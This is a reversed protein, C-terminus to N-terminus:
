AAIPLQLARRRLWNGLNYAFMKGNVEACVATRGSRRVRRLHQNHKITFIRSEGASRWQRLERILPDNWSEQGHQRKGKSGSVSFDIVGLERIDTETQKGAYGDDTSLQKVAIGTNATCQIVVQKLSKSDSANGKNLVAAACYGADNFAFQIKYGLIAERGGKVIIAADTDKNSFYKLDSKLPKGKFIRENAQNVVSLLAHFYGGHRQEITKLHRRQKHTLQLAYQVQDQLYRSQFAQVCKLIKMTASLAKRYGQRVRKRKGAKKGWLGMERHQTEVQSLWRNVKCSLERELGLMQKMRQLERLLGHLSEVLLASDIPYSANAKVATSDVVVREWQALSHDQKELWRLQKQSIKLAAQEDILNINELITTVGPMQRTSPHLLTRITSSEEILTKASSKCVGDQWTSVLYFLFVNQPPMRPRGKLLTKCQPMQVEEWDFCDQRHSQSDWLRLSKKRLGHADQLSEILSEIEPTQQYFRMGERLFDGFDSCSAGFLRNVRDNDLELQM